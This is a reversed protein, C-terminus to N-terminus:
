VVAAKLEDAVQTLERTTMKVQHMGVASEQSGQSINTMSSLVQQISVAQQKASTSIQQSNLFVNNVADTVGAFTAATSRALDIGEDVTKTGEDTVMVTRNIATQIDEALANIKDASKKSQDALKRIEDAVVSFGKGQEGARAAEVAANLALMNTQSALDAVLDSVVTIQGTQESLTVIQNAIADVKDRLGSMGQLTEQVARTGDESLALAQRAGNAAAEAQAASQFSVAGLENVTASTDIASNAQMNVNVEQVEVTNVIASSSNVISEAMQQIFKTVRNGVLLSLGVTTGGAVLMGVLLVILVANAKAEILKTDKAIIIGLNSQGLEESNPLSVVSILQNANNLRDVDVVSQPKDSNKLQEYRAFDSTDRGIQAEESALIFKSTNKDIIHWQANNVGYVEAIPKLSAVPLRLRVIASMQGTISDKVPAVFYISSKETSKSTEVKSVYPKGTKLVAQFYERNAHNDLKSGKSAAIPNGNLDFIVASDYFKYRDVYNSLFDEQEAQSVVKAINANNFFPLDALSKADRIRIGIFRALADSLATASSKENDTESEILNSSSIFYALGGVGLVPLLSLLVAIATAKAKFPLSNLKDQFNTRFSNLM